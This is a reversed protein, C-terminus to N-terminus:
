ARDDLIAFSEFAEARTKSRARFMTPVNKADLVTTPHLIGITRRLSRVRALDALGAEDFIARVCGRV